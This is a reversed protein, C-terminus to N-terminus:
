LLEQWIWIPEQLVISTLNRNITKSNVTMENSLVIVTLDEDQLRVVYHRFGSPYGGSHGVAKHGLVDQTYWGYGYQYPFKSAHTTGMQKTTEESVLLNQRLAEDFLALDEATSIIDGAAFAASNDMRPGSEGEVHGEAAPSGEPITFMSHHMGSPIFIHEEIYDSYPQGSVQEIILGLLVYGTNSYSFSEGPTFELQENRVVEIIDNPEWVQSYDFQYDPNLYDPIGSSHSLLHGLTITDANPFNPFYKALPDDVTLMQKEALQMIAVATFSKSLSAIQYLTDTGNQVNPAAMGYGKKFLLEGDKAILVAGQFEQNSLYQDIQEPISGSLNGHNDRGFALLSAGGLVGLTLVFILAIKFFKRM